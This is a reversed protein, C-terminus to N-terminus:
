RVRAFGSRSKGSLLLRGPNSEGTPQLSFLFLLGTGFFLLTHAIPTIMTIPSILSIPGIPSIPSIPSRPSIPSILGIPSIPGILSIIGM